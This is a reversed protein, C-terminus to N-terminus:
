RSGEWPYDSNKDGVGEPNRAHVRRSFDDLERNRETKQAPEAGEPDASAGGRGPRTGTM